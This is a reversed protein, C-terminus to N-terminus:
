KSNHPLVTSLGMIFRVAVLGSFSYQAAVPNLAISIAVCMFTSLVVPKIMEISDILYGTPFISIAYGWFYASM